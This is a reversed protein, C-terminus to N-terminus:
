IALRPFWAPATRYRGAWARRGRGSRRSRGSVRVRAASRSVRRARPGPLSTRAGPRALSPGRPRPATSPSRPRNTPGQRSSPRASRPKPSRSSESDPPQGAYSGGVAATPSSPGLGSVQSLGPYPLAGAESEPQASAAELADAFSTSGSPAATGGTQSVTKAAGSLSSPVLLAPNALANNIAAVRQITTELSMTGTM